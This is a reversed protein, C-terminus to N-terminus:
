KENYLHATTKNSIHSRRIQAYNKKKAVFGTPRQPVGTTSKQANKKTHTKNDTPVRFNVYM